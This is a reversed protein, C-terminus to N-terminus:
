APAAALNRALFQAVRTWFDVKTAPEIWGHGEKPYTVWDVRTNGAEALARRMAKGHEIPVRVDKEGYALLVPQRSDRICMESGM